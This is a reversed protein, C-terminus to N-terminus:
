QMQSITINETSIHQNDIVLDIEYVGPRMFNINAIDLIITTFLSNNVDIEGNLPPLVERGDEDIFNVKFTHKGIESRHFEVNAVYTLKPHTAPFQSAFINKFIGLVNLNGSQSINAADCVFSYKIKM